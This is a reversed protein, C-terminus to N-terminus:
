ARWPPRYRADNISTTIGVQVIVLFRCWVSQSSRDHAGTARDHLTTAFRSSSPSFVDSELHVSTSIRNLSASIDDYRSPHRPSLRRHRYGLQPNVRRESSVLRYGGIEVWLSDEEPSEIDDATTNQRCRYVYASASLDDGVRVCKYSKDPCECSRLILCLSLYMYYNNPVSHTNLTSFILRIARGGQTINEYMRIAGSARGDEIEYVSTLMKRKRKLIKM